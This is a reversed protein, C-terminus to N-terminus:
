IINGNLKGFIRGHSYSSTDDSTNILWWPCISLSPCCLDAYYGGIEADEGQKYTWDAFLSPRCLEEKALYLGQDAAKKFWTRAAELSKEVGQGTKYMKALCFSAEVSGNEAATKYYSFDFKTGNITENIPCPVKVMQDFKYFNYLKQLAAFVVVAGFVLGIRWIQHSTLGLIQRNGSQSIPLGPSQNTASTVSTM